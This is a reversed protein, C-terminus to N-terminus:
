GLTAGNRRFRRAGNPRVTVRTLRDLKRPPRPGDYGYTKALTGSLTKIRNGLDYALNVTGTHKVCGTLGASVVLSVAIADRLHNYLFATINRNRLPAQM